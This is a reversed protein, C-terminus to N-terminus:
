KIISFPILNEKECRLEAISLRTISALDSIPLALKDFLDSIKLLGNKDLFKALKNILQPVEKPLQDDLPEKKRYSTLQRFLYQKQNDSILSLNSARMIISSISTLWREKLNLLATLNSSYYEQGFSVAPMLFCSAFNNAQKEIKQFFLKEKLEEDMVFRHIVLHGLEHALNFRHRVATSRNDTAIFPKNECWFSFADLKENSHIPGIIIGNNELLNTLNKIPGDGLGWFRRVDTAIKEIDPDTLNEIDKIELEPLNPEPITAFRSMEKVVFAIWKGKGRAQMQEKKAASSRRRFHVASEMEPSANKATFFREPLNLARSILRLTAPSPKKIGKEFSSIAQRSLDLLRALDAMTLGKAERAETLRLPNISCEHVPLNAPKM